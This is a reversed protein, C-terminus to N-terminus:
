LVQRVSRQQVFPALIFVLLHKRKMSSSDLGIKKRASYCVFIQNAHMQM